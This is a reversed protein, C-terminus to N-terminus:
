TTRIVKEISFEIATIGEWPFLRLICPGDKFTNIHAPDCTENEDFRRYRM